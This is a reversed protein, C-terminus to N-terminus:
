SINGGGGLAVKRKGRSAEHGKRHWPFGAQQEGMAENVGVSTNIVETLAKHDSGCQCLCVGEASRCARRFIGRQQQHSNLFIQLEKLPCM